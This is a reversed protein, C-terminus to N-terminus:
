KGKASRAAGWGLRTRIQARVSAPLKVRPASHAGKLGSPTAVYAPIDGTNQDFAIGTIEGRPNVSEGLMLYLSSSPVLSNLDTMVGDQWVFARCNFSVDCSQGVVRGNDNIGFAFSAFDGPLTGLDKMVGKDWLFAHTTTDGPLDAFGVVQGRNNIDWAVNSFQGGFGGLDIPSSPSGPQWLVAHVGIVPNVTACFGSAGVVQGKANIAVAVSIADGAIPSLTQMQDPKKGWIVAEFDLVQPAICTPDVTSNEATGVLQGGDNLGFVESNNGGLTPLATTVGRMWVYGLCTRDTFQLVGDVYFACFNEKYPDANSTDSSGGVEGKNNVPWALSNTGGLTGLDVIEGGHWLFGHEASGGTLDAAGSVWGRDNIFNAFAQTGGLTPLRVV